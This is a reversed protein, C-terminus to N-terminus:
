LTGDAMLLSILWCKRSEDWEAGVGCDTARKKLIIDRHGSSHMWLLVVDRPRLSDPVAALCEGAWVTGPLKLAPAMNLHKTEDILDLRLVRQHALQHMAQNRSSRPLERRDRIKNVWYPIGARWRTQSMTLLETM